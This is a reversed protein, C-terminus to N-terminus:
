IWIDDVHSPTCVQPEQHPSRPPCAALGRPDRLLRSSLAVTQLHSTPQTLQRNWAAGRPSSASPM